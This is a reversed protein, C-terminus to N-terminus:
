RRGEEIAYLSREGDAAIAPATILERLYETLAPPCRDHNVVLYRVGLGALQALAGDGSPVREPPPVVEGSSLRLLTGLVPLARYRDALGAPMRAVFGGVIEHEHITQFFLSRADFAGIEGFGDRLGFPLECVAGPPLTRLLSYLAPRTVTCIPPRAPLCDLVLGAALVAALWRHASAALATFGYAALMAVCLYVVAIARGPIRANNAIPIWRVVTEPLWLPTSHGAAVVFPGLAWAAFVVLPFLWRTRAHRAGASLGAIGLAIAAPTIWGVQEVLDVHMARYARMAAAGYLGSYPNGLVLTALDIGPPASRWLYRQTVYAGSTWMALGHMALPAVAILLAIAAAAIGPLLRRLAARDVRGRLRALAHVIAFLLVLLWGAAVPNRVGRISIHRGLIQLDGGGTVAIWAALVGDLVLLAALSWAAVSQWRRNEAAVSTLSLWHPMLLLGALASAFVFLYYDVYAIGGLALGLWAGRALTPRDRVALGALAALPLTWIAILNFHGQLHGGLYPCWGFVAAAVLSATWHQTERWALVYALLFNLFLHVANIANQAAIPDAFGSALLAPGLTNTHLTLDTGQPFFLFRTFFVSLGPQHLAFRTWWLNWVFSLNDGPGAGPVSGHFDRLIPWLWFLAAGAFLISAAAHRPAHRPM